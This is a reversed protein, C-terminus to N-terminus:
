VQVHPNFTIVYAPEDSHEYVGLYYNGKFLLMKHADPGFKMFPVREFEDPGDAGLRGIQCEYLNLLVVINGNDNMLAGRHSMGENHERDITLPSFFRDAISEWTGSPDEAQIFRPLVPTTSSVTPEPALAVFRGEWYELETLGNSDQGIPQTGPPTINTWNVGHDESVQILDSWLWDYGVIEVSQGVAVVKGDGSKISTITVGDADPVTALYGWSWDGPDAPLARAYYGPNSSMEGSAIFATGDFHVCRYTIPAPSSQYEFEPWNFNADPEGTTYIDYQTLFVYVGDGYAVDVIKSSGVDGIMRFSFGDLSAYVYYDQVFLYGNAQGVLGGQAGGYGFNLKTPHIFKDRLLGAGSRLSTM